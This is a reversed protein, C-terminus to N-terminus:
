CWGCGLLSFHKTFIENQKQIYISFHTPDTLLLEAVLCDYFGFPIQWERCRLMSLGWEHFKIKSCQKFKPSRKEETYITLTKPKVVKTLFTSLIKTVKTFYIRAIYHWELMVKIFDWLINWTVTFKRYSPGHQRTRSCDGVSARITSRCRHTCYLITYQLTCYWTHCIHTTLVPEEERVICGLDHDTFNSGSVSPFDDGVWMCCSGYSGKEVCSKGVYDEHEDGSM